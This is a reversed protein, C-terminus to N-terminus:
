AARQNAQSAQRAGGRVRQALTGIWGDAARGGNQRRPRM